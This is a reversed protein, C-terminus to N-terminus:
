RIFLYLIVVYNNDILIVKEIDPCIKAAIEKTSM